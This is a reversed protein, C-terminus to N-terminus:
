DYTIIAVEQVDDNPIFIMETEKDIEFTEFETVIQVVNELKLDSQEDLFKVIAVRNKVIIEDISYSEIFKAHRYM